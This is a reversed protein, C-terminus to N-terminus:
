RTITELHPEVRFGNRFYPPNSKSLQLGLLTRFNCTANCFLCMASDLLSITLENTYITFLLTLNGLFNLRLFVIQRTSLVETLNRYDFKSTNRDNNRMCYVSEKYLIVGLLKAIKSFKQMAGYKMICVAGPYPFCHHFILNSKFSRSRNHITCILAPTRCFVGM